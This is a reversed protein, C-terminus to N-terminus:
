LVCTLNTYPIKKIKYKGRGRTCKLQQFYVCVIEDIHHFIQPSDVCM